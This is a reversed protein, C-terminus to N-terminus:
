WAKQESLIIDTYPYHCTHTYARHCPRASDFNECPLGESSRHQSLIFVSHHGICEASSYPSFREHRLISDSSSTLIQTASLRTEAVRFRPNRLLKEPLRRGPPLLVLRPGSNAWPLLEM